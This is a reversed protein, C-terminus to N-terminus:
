RPDKFRHNPIVAIPALEVLFDEHGLGAVMISTSAPTVTVDPFFESRVDQILPLQSQDTYYTTISVIDTLEGGVAALIGWHKQLM